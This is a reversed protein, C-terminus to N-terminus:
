VSRSRSPVVRQLPDGGLMLYDTDIVTQSEQSFVGVPDLRAIWSTILQFGVVTWIVVLCM